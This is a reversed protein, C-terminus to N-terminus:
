IIMHFKDKVRSRMEKYTDEIRISIYERDKGFGYFEITLIPHNLEFSEPHSKINVGNNLLGSVQKVIPAMASEMIGVVSLEKSMYFKDSIGLTAQIQPLMGNMERPVGPVSFIKIGQYQLFMGPATGEQNSIIQANEPMMAMKLREETINLNLREYRDRLVKLAEQNVLLQLQLCDSISKITIDDMTPGLGGTTIIVDTRNMMYKVSNCIESQIDRCVIHSVIEFGLETFFSAIKNSNTDLTRGKVVENGIAIIGIRM